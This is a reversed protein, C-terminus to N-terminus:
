STDLISFVTKGNMEKNEPDALIGNMHGWLFRTGEYNEVSTIKNGQEEM